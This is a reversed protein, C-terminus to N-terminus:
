TKYKEHLMDREKKWWDQSNGSIMQQALTIAAPLRLRKANWEIWETAHPDGRESLPKLALLLAIINAEYVIQAELTKKEEYEELNKLLESDIDKFIDDNAKKTDRTVYLSQLKHVDGTRAEHFDHFISMTLVKEMNVKQAQVSSISTNLEKALFFAIVSTTFIHEGLPEEGNGLVQFGVRHLKKVIGAEFIINTISKTNM